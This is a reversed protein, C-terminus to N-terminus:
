GAVEPLFLTGETEGGLVRGLMGPASSAVVMPIGAAAAIRAAAIKTVMGGTGRDSGAGSALAELEPTIREVVDIRRAAPDRRPDGSYLGDIDTLLVLLGAQVLEAVRASLTDNDGFKIEETAVTDNENVIPIVGWELLRQLTNLCNERRVPDQLDERTLLVQAVAQNYESMLKGYTGMLIGQGVAALAQKAAIDAPPKLLGLRGTGAAVAGSTVLIVRRGANRLDALDRCLMEIRSYNLKGNDHTLSSSGVKIVILGAEKVQQRRQVEDM